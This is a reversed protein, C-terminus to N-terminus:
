KESITGSEESITGTQKDKVRGTVFNINTEVKAGSGGPSVKVTLGISLAGDETQSYAKAIEFQYETLLSEIQKAMFDITQTGIIM